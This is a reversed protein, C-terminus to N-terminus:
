LSLATSFTSRCRSYRVCGPRDVDPKFPTAGAATVEVIRIAVRLYLVDGRSSASSCDAPLLSRRPRVFFGPGFQRGPGGIM